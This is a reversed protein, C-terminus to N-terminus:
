SLLLWCASFVCILTDVPSLLYICLTNESGIRDLKYEARMKAKTMM